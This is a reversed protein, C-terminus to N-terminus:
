RNTRQPLMSSTSLCVIRSVEPYYVDCVKIRTWIGFVLISVIPTTVISWMLILRWGSNWPNEYKGSM